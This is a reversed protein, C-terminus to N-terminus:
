FVSDQQIFNLIPGYLGERIWDQQYLLCDGEKYVASTEDIYSTIGKLWLVKPYKKLVMSITEFAGLCYVDDADIWAYIDGSAMLFGKNIAEYMSLDQESVFQINVGNCGVPFKNSRLLHEYSSVIGSTRDTSCKDMIIYEIEFDGKQSIVSEITKGIFHQSNFSSTIISYKM